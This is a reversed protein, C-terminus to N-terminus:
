GEEPQVPREEEAEADGASDGGADNDWYRTETTEYRACYPWLFPPYPFVRFAWEM